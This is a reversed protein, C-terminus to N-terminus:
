LLAQLASRISPNFRAMHVPSLDTPTRRKAKVTTIRFVAQRLFSFEDVSPEFDLEVLVGNVGRGSVL